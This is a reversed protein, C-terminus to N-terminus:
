SSSSHRLCHLFWQRFLPLIGHIINGSWLLREYLLSQNSNQDPFLSQYRKRLTVPVAHCHDHAPLQANIEPYRFENNKSQVYEPLITSCTGNSHICCDVVPSKLLLHPNNDHCRVYSLLWHHNAFPVPLWQMPLLYQDSLLPIQKQARFDPAAKPVNNWTVPDPHPVVYPFQYTKRHVSGCPFPVQFGSVM